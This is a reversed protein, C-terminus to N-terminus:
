AWNACCREMLEINRAATEPATPDNWIARLREMTKAGLVADPNASRAERFELLAAASARTLYARALGHQKIASSPAANTVTSTGYVALVAYEKSPQPVNDVVEDALLFMPVNFTFAHAPVDAPTPFFAPWDLMQQRINQSNMPVSIM